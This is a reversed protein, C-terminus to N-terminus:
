KNPQNWFKEAGDVGARDYVDSLFKETEDPNWAFLRSQHWLAKALWQLPEKSLRDAFKLPLGGARLYPSGSVEESAVWLSIRANGHAVSSLWSYAWENGLSEAIRDTISPREVSQNRLYQLCANRQANLLALTSPLDPVSFYRHDGIRGLARIAADIDAIEACAGRNTRATHQIKTDLLCVAQSATELIERAIGWPSAALVLDHQLTRSLNLGHDSAAMLGYKGHMFAAELYKPENSTALEGSAQSGLLLLSGYRQSADIIEDSIERVAEARQSVMDWSYNSTAM